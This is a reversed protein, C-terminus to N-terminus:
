INICDVASIIDSECSLIYSYKDDTGVNYLRCIVVDTLLEGLKFHFYHIMKHTMLSKRYSFFLTSCIRFKITRFCILMIEGIIKIRAKESGM